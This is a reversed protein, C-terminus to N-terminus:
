WRSVAARLAPQPRGRAAARQEFFRRNHLGTLEDTVTLSHVAAQLRVSELAVALQRAVAACPALTTPRSPWSGSRRATACSRCCPSAHALERGGAPLTDLVRRTEVLQPESWLRSDRAMLACARAPSRTTGSPSTCRSACPGSASGRRTSPWCRSSRRGRGAASQLPVTLASVRDAQRVDLLRQRGGEREASESLALRALHLLDEAQRWAHRWGPRACCSPCRARAAALAGGALRPRSRGGGRAEAAAGDPGARLTPWRRRGPEGAAGPRVRRCLGFAAEGRAQLGGARGRGGDRRAADRPVTRTAGRPRARDVAPERPLCGCSRRGVYTPRSRSRRRCRRAHGPDRRGPAGRGEAPRSCRIACPPSRRSTPPPRPHTTSASSRWTRPSACGRRPSRACRASRRAPRQERARGHVLARARPDRQMAEYGGHESHRGPEVLAEDPDLGLEACCAASPTSARPRQRRPRAPRRRHVRRPPPRARAPARARPPLGDRQRGRGRAHRRRRRRVRGPLRGGAAAARVRAAGRHAAPLHVAARGHELPRGARLGRRESVVPWAPRAAAPDDIRDGVGCSLLVDCGLDRAAREDGRACRSWSGTRRRGSTSSGARSCASRRASASRRM